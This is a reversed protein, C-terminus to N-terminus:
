TGTKHRAKHVGALLLVGFWASLTAYHAGKLWPASADFDTLIPVVTVWLSAILVIILLTLKM